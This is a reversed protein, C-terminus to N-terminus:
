YEGQTMLMHNHSIVHQKLQKLQTSNSNLKIWDPEIFLLTCVENDVAFFVYCPLNPVFISLFSLTANETETIYIVLYM